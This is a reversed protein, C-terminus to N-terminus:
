LGSPLFTRGTRKMRQKVGTSVGVRRGEKGKVPARWGGM